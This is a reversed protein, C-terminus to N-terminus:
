ADGEFLVLELHPIPGWLQDHIGKVIYNKSTGSVTVRDGQRIGSVTVFAQYTKGYQGESLATLEPGAPQINIQVRNYNGVLQYDEKDSDGSTPQLRYISAIKDLILM